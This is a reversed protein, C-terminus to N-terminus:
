DEPGDSSRCIVDDANGYLGDPGASRIVIEARKATQHLRYQYANGWPDPPLRQLYPGRWQPANSCNRILASLGESSSPYYGLDDRYSDLSISISNLDARAEDQKNYGQCTRSIGLNSARLGQLACAFVGATISMKIIQRRSWRRNSERAYSLMPSNQIPTDRAIRPCRGLQDVAM